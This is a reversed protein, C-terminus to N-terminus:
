EVAAIVVAVVTVAVAGILGYRLAANQVELATAAAQARTLAQTSEALLSESLKQENESIVLDARSRLLSIQLDANQQELDSVSAQSQAVSAKLSDIQQTWSDEYTKMLEPLDNTAKLLTQWLPELGILNPPSSQATALPSSTLLWALALLASFFRASM